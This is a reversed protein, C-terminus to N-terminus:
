AEAVFHIDALSFWANSGTWPAVRGPSASSGGFVRAQGWADNSVISFPAQGSGAPRYTPPLEFATVNGVTGASMLGRLFVESGVKRYGVPYNVADYQGWGNQFTPTIWAADGVPGVVLRDVDNIVEVWVTENVIPSYGHHRRAPESTPSGGIRVTLPNVATVVAQRMVVNPLILGSPEDLRPKAIEAALDKISM